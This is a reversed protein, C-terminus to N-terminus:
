FRFRFQAGAVRPNGYVQEVLGNGPFTIDFAYQLQEEDLLNRAFLAIDWNGQAPLYSLRTNVNWYDGAATVPANTLQSFYDGVYTADVGVRVEGSAIEFGKSLSVNFELDPTQPAERDLPVGGIDVDEVDTEVFVLGLRGDWGNGVSFSFEGEAGYITADTNSLIFSVGRQDFAQYDEYDYYFLAFNLRAQQNFFDLKSGLEYANLQEGDFRVFEVQAAGAFGANYNFAKYGRNYSAYLLWDETLRYDLQLRASIGDEDHSDTVVGAGAITAPNQPPCALPSGILSVCTNQYRYDKEDQTYRLGATLVMADNLDYEGQLYVSWSETQIEYDGFQNQGLPILVAGPEGGPLFESPAGLANNFNGLNNIQYGQTYDGDIDLYYFGATIRTKDFDRSARLEQSFSDQETTQYFEAVDFPTLDNDEDYSFEIDNFASISKLTWEAVDYTLELSVTSEDRMYSGDENFSGTFVDGDADIYGTDTNRSPRFQGLTDAGAFGGTPFTGGIADSEYDSFEATLRASFNDSPEWLLKARLGETRLEGQDAGIDNEVYGDNDSIFGAVRLKLTDSIPVSVAGEATLTNFEAAQLDLYGEIEDGPDNTIVHILGGTANRGFLTGQPGKLVEVRQVDYLRTLNGGNSPRYVDDQYFINASELHSAFDNQAVGRIAVLGALPAGPRIISLGPTIATLEETQVVGAQRLQEGNLATVSVGIDQISADRRTATVIVEELARGASDQGLVAPSAALGGVGVFWWVSLATCRFQRM